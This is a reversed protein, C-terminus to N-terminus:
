QQGGQQNTDVPIETQTTGAAPTAKGTLKEVGAKFVLDVGSIFFSFVISFVAVLLTLRLAQKPTPWSVKKLEAFSEKVFRFPFTLKNKM